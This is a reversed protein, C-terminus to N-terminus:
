DRDQGARRYDAFAMTIYRVLAAFFHVITADVNRRLLIKEFTKALVKAFCEGSLLIILAAVINWAFQMITEGHGVLWAIATKLQPFLVSKKVDM